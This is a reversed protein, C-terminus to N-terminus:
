VAMCPQLSNRQPQNLPLRIGAMEIVNKPNKKWRGTHPWDAEEQKM